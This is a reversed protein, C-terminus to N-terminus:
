REKCGAIWWTGTNQGQEFLVKMGADSIIKHTEDYPAATCMSTEYRPLEARAAESWGLLANAQRRAEWQMKLSKYEDMDGYLTIVFHGGPRLIRAAERLYNYQVELDPIHQFVIVSFVLDVSSDAIQHFDVGNGRVFKVKDIEGYQGVIRKAEAIMVKSVDLATVSKFMKSLHTTLRGAGCGIEMCDMDRYILAMNREFPDLIRHVTDHGTALFEEDTWDDKLNVVANLVNISARADWDAAMDRSPVIKKSAM